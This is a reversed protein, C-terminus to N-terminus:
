SAEEEFSVIGWIDNQRLLVFDTSNWTFRETVYDGYWVKDGAKVTTCDAGVSRVLGEQRTGEETHEVEILIGSASAVHEEKQVVEILVKDGLPTFRMTKTPDHKM